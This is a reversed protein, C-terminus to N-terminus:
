PHKPQEPPVDFLLTSKARFKHCNRFQLINVTNVGKYKTKVVSQVPLVFGTGDDFSVNAYATFTDVGQTPFKKPLGEAALRLMVLEGTKQDLWLEGSYPPALRQDNATVWWVPETQEAIRYSFAWTLQKGMKKEGIFAFVPKNTVNFISRLNAGFEGSSWLGSLHDVLSAPVKSGNLKVDTFTEKGDEYRLSAGITDDPYRSGEHFRSTTQDCIFNPMRHTLSLAFECAGALSPAHSIDGAIWACFDPASASVAGPSTNSSAPAVANMTAPDVGALKALEQEQDTTVVALAGPSSQQKDLKPANESENSTPATTADPRVNALAASGKGCLDAAVNEVLKKEAKDIASEVSGSLRAQASGVAYDRGSEVRAVEYVFELSKGSKGPRKGSQAADRIQAFLVFQCSSARAEVIAKSREQEKLQVAQIAGTREKDPKLANFLSVLSAQAESAPVSQLSSTVTTIGVRIVTVEQALVCRPFLLIALAVIYFTPRKM